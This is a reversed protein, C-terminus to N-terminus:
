ELRGTDTGGHGVGAPPHTTQTEATESSIFFSRIIITSRAAAAPRGTIFLKDGSFQVLVSAASVWRPGEAVVWEEVGM